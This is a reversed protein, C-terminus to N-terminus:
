LCLSTDLGEFPFPSGLFQLGTFPGGPGSFSVNLLPRWGLHPGAQLKAAAALLAMSPPTPGTAGQPTGWGVPRCAPTLGSHSATLGLRDTRLNGVGAGGPCKMGEQSAPCCLAESSVCGRQAATGEATIPTRPRVHPAEPRTLVAQSM